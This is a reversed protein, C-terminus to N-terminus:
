RTCVRDDVGCRSRSSWGVVKIAARSCSWLRYIFHNISQNIVCSVGGVCGLIMMYDIGQVAAAVCTTIIGVDVDSAGIKSM